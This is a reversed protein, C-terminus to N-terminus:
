SDLGYKTRLSPHYIFLCSGEKIQNIINESLAVPLAPCGFSRGLRGNKEIYEYSVYDAGHIVIARKLANDNLGKELGELRLSYGHKGSYTNSTLFLGLSSQHSSRQNSFREAILVGSNQGHAVLSKYVMERNKIDMVYFREKDSTQSYDIITILSDNDLKKKKLLTYYAKYAMEFAAFSLNNGTLLSDYSHIIASVKNVDENLLENHGPNNAAGFFLFSIVSVAIFLIYRTM